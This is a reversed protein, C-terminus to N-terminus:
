HVFEIVHFIDIHLDDNNKWSIYKYTSYIFEQFQKNAIIFKNNYQKVKM